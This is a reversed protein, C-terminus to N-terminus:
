ESDICDDAVCKLVADPSGVRAGDGVDETEADGIELAVGECEGDEDTVVLCEEEADNQGDSEDEADKELDGWSDM